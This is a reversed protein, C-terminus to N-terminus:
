QWKLVNMVPQDVYIRANDDGDKTLKRLRYAHGEEVVVWGLEICGEGWNVLYWKMALAESRRVGTSAYM